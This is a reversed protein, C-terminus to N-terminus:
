WLDAQTLKTSRKYDSVQWDDKAANSLSKRITERILSQYGIGVKGKKVIKTDTIAGVSGLIKDDRLFKGAQRLPFM